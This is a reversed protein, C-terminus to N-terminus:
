TYEAIGQQKILKKQRESLEEGQKLAVEVCADGYADANAFQYQISSKAYYKQGLESTPDIRFIGWMDIQNVPILTPDDNLGMNIQPDLEGGIWQQRWEPPIYPDVNCSTSLKLNSLIVGKVALELVPLVDTLMNVLFDIIEDMTCFKQLLMMLLSMVNISGGMNGLNFPIELNLTPYMQITAMIADIYGLLEQVERLSNAASQNVPM